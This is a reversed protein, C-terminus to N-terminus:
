GWNMSFNEEVLGTGPALFTPSQQTVPYIESPLSTKEWSFVTFKNYLDTFLYNNNTFYHWVPKHKLLFPFIINQFVFIFM